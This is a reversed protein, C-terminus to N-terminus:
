RKEEKCYLDHIQEDIWRCTLPVLEQLWNTYLVNALVVFDIQLEGCFFVTAVNKRVVVIITLPYIRKTFM